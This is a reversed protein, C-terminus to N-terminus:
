DGFEKKEKKKMTLYECVKWKCMNRTKVLLYDLEIATKLKAM